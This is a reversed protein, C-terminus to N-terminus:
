VAVPHRSDVRLHYARTLAVVLGPSVADIAGSPVATSSAGRRLLRTRFRFYPSPEGRVKLSVDDTHPHIPTSQSLGPHSISTTPDRGHLSTEDGGM